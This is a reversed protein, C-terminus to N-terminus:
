VAVDLYLNVGTLENIEELYNKLHPPFDLGKVVTLNRLFPFFNVDDWTIKNGKESPLTIFNVNVLLPKLSKIYEDSQALAEKFSMEIFAEKKETFWTVAEPREFEPLEFQTWRPFTLKNFLPRANSLWESIDDAHTGKEIVPHHDIEDLYKAIDLSEAMYNGDDKELIPVMNAGVMEIRTDVDDNQLYTFEVPLKKIGAVMKAKMCFPCHDFIFLKM